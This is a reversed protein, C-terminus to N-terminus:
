GAGKNLEFNWKRRGRQEVPKGDVMKPKFKCRQAAIVAAAEFLGKPQADVARASRVSGDPNVVFEVQVWGTLGARRADAPYSTPPCQLPVIDGDFLAAASPGKGSLGSGSVDAKLNLNPIELGSLGPQAVADSAIKMKAPPPPAPPPPPPKRRQLTEVESDRKLRVFDITPLANKAELHAHGARIVSYLLGFLAMSLLLAAGVAPLAPGPKIAALVRANM